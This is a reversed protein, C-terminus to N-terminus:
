IMILPNSTFQKMSMPSIMLILMMKKVQPSSVSCIINGYAYSLALGVTKSFVQAALNVKMASFATLDVHQRTLKPCLRYVSNEGHDQFLNVIHM